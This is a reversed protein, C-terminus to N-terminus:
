GRDLGGCQPSTGIALDVLVNFVRVDFVVMVKSTRFVVTQERDCDRRRESLHCHRGSRFGHFGDVVFVGELNANSFYRRWLDLM